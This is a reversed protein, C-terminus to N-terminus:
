TSAKAAVQLHAHTVLNLYKRCIRHAAFILHHPDKSTYNVRVVNREENRCEHQLRHFSNQWIKSPFTREDTVFSMARHHFLTREETQRDPRMGDVCTNSCYFNTRQMTPQTTVFYPLDCRLPTGRRRWADAGDIGWSSVRFSIDRLETVYRMVVKADDSCRWISYAIPLCVPCAPFLIPGSRSGLLRSALYM